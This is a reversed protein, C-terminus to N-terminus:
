NKWKDYGEITNIYDKVEGQINDVFSSYDNLNGLRLLPDVYGDEIEKFYIPFIPHKDMNVTLACHVLGVAWIAVDDVYLVLRLFSQDKSNCIIDGARFDKPNKSIWDSGM